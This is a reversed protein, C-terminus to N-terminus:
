KQAAVTTAIDKWLQKGCFQLGLEDYQLMLTVHDGVDTTENGAREAMEVDSGVCQLGDMLNRFPYFFTCILLPYIFLLHIFQIIHGKIAFAM